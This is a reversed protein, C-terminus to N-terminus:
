GNESDDQLLTMKSEARGHGTDLHACVGDIRGRCCCGFIVLDVEESGEVTRARM